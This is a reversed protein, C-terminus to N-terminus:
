KCKKHREKTGIRNGPKNLDSAIGVQINFILASHVYALVFTRGVVIVPIMAILLRLFAGVSACPLCKAIDIVKLQIM